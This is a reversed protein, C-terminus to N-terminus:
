ASRQMYWVSSLIDTDETVSVIPVLKWHANDVHGNFEELVEEVFDGSDEQAMAKHFYMTTGQIEDLFAMPNSMNGQLELYIYHQTEYTSQFANFMSKQFEGAEM